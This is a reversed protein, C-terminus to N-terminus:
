PWTTEPIKSENNIYRSCIFLFDSLRNLYIIYNNPIDEVEEHFFVMKREVRRTFTRCLHLRCAAETGGPLIFNKLVPLNDDLLDIMKEMEVIGEEELVPLKYSSRKDAECAINSGMVFLIKQVSTLFKYTKEEQDLASLTFGLLSNLEDLDGYLDIRNDSKRVRTGSVLSTEGRDGGKTYIASKEVM